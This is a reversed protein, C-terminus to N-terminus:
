SKDAPVAEVALAWPCLWSPPLLQRPTGSEMAPAPRCGLRENSLTETVETSSKDNM